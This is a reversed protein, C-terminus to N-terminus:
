LVKKVIDQTGMLNVVSVREADDPTIEDGNVSTNQVALMNMRADRQGGKGVFEAPEYWAEPPSGTTMAGDVLGEALPGWWGM